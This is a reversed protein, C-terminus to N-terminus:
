SIAYHFDTLSYGVLTRKEMRFAAIYCSASDPLGTGVESTEEDKPEEKPHEDVDRLMIYFFAACLIAMVVAFVIQGTRDKRSRCAKVTFYIALSGLLAIFTICVIPENM